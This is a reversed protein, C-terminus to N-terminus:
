ADGKGNTVKTDVVVYATVPLITISPVIFPPLTNGVGFAVLPTSCHWHSWSVPCKKIETGSTLPGPLSECGPATNSILGIDCAITCWYLMGSALRAPGCPIAMPGLGWIRSPQLAVAFALLGVAIMLLNLPEM